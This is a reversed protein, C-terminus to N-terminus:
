LKCDSWCISIRSVFTSQFIYFVILICRRMCFSVCAGVIGCGFLACWSFSFVRSNYLWVWVRPSVTFSMCDDKRNSLPCQCKENRLMMHCMLTTSLASNESLLLAAATLMERSEASIHSRAQGTSRAHRARTSFGDGTAALLLREWRVHSWTLSITSPVQVCAYFMVCGCSDLSHCLLQLKNSWQLLVFGSQNVPM